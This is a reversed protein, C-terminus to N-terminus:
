LKYVIFTLMCTNILYKPCFISYYSISCELAHFLSFRSSVYLSWSPVKSKHLKQKTKLAIRSSWQRTHFIPFPRQGTHRWKPNGSALCATGRVYICAHGHVSGPNFVHYSSPSSFLNKKEVNNFIRCFWLELYM